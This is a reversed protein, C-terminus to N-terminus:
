ELATQETPPAELTLLYLDFTSPMSLSKEPRSVNWCLVREVLYFVANIICENMILMLFVFRLIAFDFCPWTDFCFCFSTYHFSTLQPSSKGGCGNRGILWIEGGWNLEIMTDEVLKIGYLSLSFQSIKIDRAYSLYWFVPLQAVETKSLRAQKTSALM